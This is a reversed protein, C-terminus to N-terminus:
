AGERLEIGKRLKNIDFTLNRKDAELQAVLKSLRAVENKQKQVKAQLAAIAAVSV